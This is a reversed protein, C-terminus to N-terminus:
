VSRGARGRLMWRHLTSRPIFTDDGKEGTADEITQVSVGADGLEVLYSDLDAEAAHLTRIKALLRRRQPASIPQGRVM